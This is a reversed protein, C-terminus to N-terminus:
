KILSIEVRRNKYRGAKTRNNYRPKVEGKALIIFNKPNVGKSILYNKVTNARRKSMAINKRRVGRSDTHSSIKIYQYEPDLSIYEAIKDLRAKENRSLRASAKAYYFSSFKIDNYSYDILSEGCKKFDRWAPEFFLPMAKAIVLDQGDGVDAHSWRAEMGERLEFAIRYAWDEPVVISDKQINMAVRGLVKRNSFRKWNPPAVYILAQASKRPINNSAVRFEMAQLARHKFSVSGYGPIEQSLRCELRNGSSQWKVSDIEAGYFQIGAWAPSFLTIFYLSVISFTRMKLAM